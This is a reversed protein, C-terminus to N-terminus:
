NAVNKLEYFISNDRIYNFVVEYIFYRYALKLFYEMGYRLLSSNLSTYFLRVRLKSIKKSELLLYIENTLKHRNSYITDQISYYVYLMLMM